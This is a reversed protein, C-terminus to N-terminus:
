FANQKHKKFSIKIGLIIYIDREKNETHTFCFSFISLFRYLAGFTYSKISNLNIKTYKLYPYKKLLNKMKRPSKDFLVIYQKIFPYEDKYLYKLSEIDKQMKKLNGVIKMNGASEAINTMKEKIREMGGLYTYHWGGNKLIYEVNNNFRTYNRMEQPTMMGYPAYCTGLWTRNQKLNTYYFYLNQEFAIPHNVGVCEKLKNTDWFEDLDSVLIVDGKKAIGKLGREIANRQYNEAKWIDDEKYQPLDEVLIYIIKDMYKQLNQKLQNFIPIHENGTHSKTAEVIVFYDVVDYYEMLRLELLEKENFFTFCDFIQRNNIM